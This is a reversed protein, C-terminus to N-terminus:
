QKKRVIKVGGPARITGDLISDEDLLLSQCRVDGLVHVGPEIEIDGGGSSVAGHVTSDKCIKVDDEASLSGFITNNKEVVVSKARINGHLRCGQGIHMPSIVSFVEMNLTSSPPIILPLPKEDEDDDSFLKQLFANIEEEKELGLLTVLYLVIYAIVPLPNRISIWGRAEFGSDIQVNDGLDLDGLVKLRGSIKVGEGIYANGNSTVDGTIETWNDIRLDNETEINGKIQCFESVIVEDGSLGYDIRSKDGIIISRDTKLTHELLQTGEPVTCQWLWDGKGKDM